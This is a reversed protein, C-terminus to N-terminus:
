GIPCTGAPSWRSGWRRAGRDHAAPGPTECVAACAPLPRRASCAM